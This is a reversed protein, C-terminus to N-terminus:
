QVINEKTASYLSQYLLLLESAIEKNDSDAGIKAALTAKITVAMAEAMTETIKTEVVLITSAKTAELVVEWPVWENTKNAAGPTAVELMTKAKIGCTAGNVKIRCPIPVNLIKNGLAPIPTPIAGPPPLDVVLSKNNTTVVVTEAWPDVKIAEVTVETIAKIVEEILTEVATEVGTVELDVGIEVMEM